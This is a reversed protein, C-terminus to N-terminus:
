RRRRSRAPSRITRSSASAAGRSRRRSVIGQSEEIVHSFPKYATGTERAVVDGARTRARVSPVRASRAPSSSRTLRDSDAGDDLTDAGVDARPLSPATRADGVFRERVYMSSDCPM